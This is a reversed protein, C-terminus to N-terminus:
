FDFEKVLWRLMAAHNAAKAQAHHRQSPVVLKVVNWVLLRWLSGITYLVRAPMISSPNIRRFYRMMSRLLEVAMAASIAATSAGGLHIITAEHLYYVGYGAGHVAEALDYEESYMFYTENMGGVRRALSTPMLMCCGLVAEVPMSVSSVSPNTTEFQIGFLKGALVSVPIHTHFLRKVTPFRLISAQDSIGDDNLVHPGVLGVTPQSALWSVMIDIAADLIITDPNLFLIYTGSAQTLGQNNARAFGVNETNAVLRVMPFENRIMQCTDDPSNNDVVIIEHSTRTQEGISRLCDRLIASTNYSVIVISVEVPEALTQTHPPTTQAIM